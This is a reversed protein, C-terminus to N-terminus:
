IAKVHPLSSLLSCGCACRHGHFAVPLGSDCFNPNGEVIVTPGHGPIPCSVPDGVRAVGIGNCIM